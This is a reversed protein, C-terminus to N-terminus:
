WGYWTTQKTRVTPESTFDSVEDLVARLLDQRVADGACVVVFRATSKWARKQVKQPNIAYATKGGPKHIIERYQETM